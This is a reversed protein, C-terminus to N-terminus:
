AVAAVKEPKRRRRPVFPLIKHRRASRLRVRAVRANAFDSRALFNEKWKALGERLYASNLDLVSCISEFSFCWSADEDLLWEEAEAFLRYQRGKRAGAYKQFCSIADELVALM